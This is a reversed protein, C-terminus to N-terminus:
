KDCAKDQHKDAPDAPFVDQAQDANCECCEKEKDQIKIAKGSSLCPRRSVQSFRMSIMKRHRAPLFIVLHHLGFDSHSGAPKESFHGPVAGLPIEKRM